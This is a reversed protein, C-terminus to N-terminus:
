TVAPHVVEEESLSCVTHCGTALQLTVSCAPSAPLHPWAPSQSPPTFPPHSLPSPQCRLPPPPRGPRMRDNNDNDNKNNIHQQHSALRSMSDIPEVDYRLRSFCLSDEASIARIVESQVLPRLKRRGLALARQREPPRHAHAATRGAVVPLDALGNQEEDVPELAALHPVGGGRPSDELVIARIVVSQSAIRERRM